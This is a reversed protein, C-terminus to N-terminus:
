KRNQNFFVFHYEISKSWYETNHNGSQFMLVFPLNKREAFTKLNLTNNLLPDETGCDILFPKSIKNNKMLEKIDYQSWNNKTPNGLLKILDDSLRSSKFFKFSIDKFSKFDLELAGSTSAASNFYDHHEAFYRLAGYGGMSLGSIFINKSDINFEQHVKPVLYMFFFSEMQSGKDFPSDLYWSIFGDPCVIILNYQNALKQLDTTRSWQKYNESYGHLLYVLPYQKQSSYDQPQYVLVSDKKSLYQSDLIWLKQAGIMIISMLFLIVSTLKKM